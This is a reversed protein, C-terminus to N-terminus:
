RGRDPHASHNSAPVPEGRAFARIQEPIFRRLGGLKVSPLTGDDTHLYVWSRSAKLFAAVDAATWLPETM